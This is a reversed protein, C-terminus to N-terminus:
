KDFVQVKQDGFATDWLFVPEDSEPPKRSAWYRANVSPITVEDFFGTGDFDSEKLLAM